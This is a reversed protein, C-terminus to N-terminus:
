TPVGGMGNWSCDVAAVGLLSSSQSNQDFGEKQEENTLLLSGAAWEVTSVDPPSLSTIATKCISADMSSHHLTSMLVALSCTTPM